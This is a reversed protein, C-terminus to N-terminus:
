ALNFTAFVHDLAELDAESVAQVITLYVHDGGTLSQSALVVYVADTGGCGEWVQYTGEFAGDTYDHRGGDSCEASADNAALLDEVTWSAADLAGFQLGPTGWTNLFSDLDPAAAIYPVTAGDMDGPSTDVDSWGAPVEVTLTGTDDTISLHDSYSAAEDLEYEHLEQAFSFAETLEKDGNIEGELVTEDDWRLVEVAIPRDGATRIVDCYDNFTGDTGMPLGNLSTVIDGPLLGASSAPSGPQVGAVWIGSLDISEDYVAWGNIGLSEVDGDRLEDVVGRAITSAIAYFQATTTADAGGAYNVGVVRGGETLLPGGSNGPQLNADHEVTHDISSTGTIDGDAEAKAVIGKTLTFEPDGLPFGAAYVDLGSSLEGDYWDLHPLDDDTDIDILALDNCESVGVVTANYSRSDDGGVFVELTASGTVVHNNTVALGDPSIIFGSGEGANSALGVEPDRLSGDAVIQVTAQQAEKVDTIGPQESSAAEAESSGGGFCATAALPVVLCLAGALLWRRSRPTPPHEPM